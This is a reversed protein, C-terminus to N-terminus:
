QYPSELLHTTIMDPAHHRIGNTCTLIIDVVLIAHTPATNAGYIVRIGLLRGTVYKSDYPPKPTLGTAHMQVRKSRLSLREAQTHMFVPRSRRNTARALHVVPAIYEKYCTSTLPETQWYKFRHRTARRYNRCIMIRRRTKDIM